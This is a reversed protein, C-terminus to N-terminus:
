GPILGMDRVYLRCQCAPEKGSAGGPFGEICLVDNSISPQNFWLNSDLNGPSIWCDWIHLHYWKLPLFGLPVLSGRSSPSLPSHFLQSLVWRKFFLYWPMQDWWKMAFQHPFPPFQSLYERKPELIVTALSQLWPIWLHKSRPLFATVFRSLMNSFLSMVKGVFTWRTLAITKGTTMYPHSLHVM